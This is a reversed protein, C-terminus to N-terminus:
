PSPSWRSRCEKGVRREESRAPALRPLPEPAHQCRRPQAGQGVAQSSSHPHTTRASRRPWARRIPPAHPPPLHIATERRLRYHSYAPQGLTLTSLSRHATPFPVCIFASRSSKNESIRLELISIRFLNLIPFFLRPFGHGFKRRAKRPLFVERLGEAGRHGRRKIIPGTFRAM